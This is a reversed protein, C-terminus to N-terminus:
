ETPEAAQEARLIQRIRGETFQLERAIQAVSRPKHGSGGLRAEVVIRGLQEKLNLAEDRIRVADDYTLKPKREAM